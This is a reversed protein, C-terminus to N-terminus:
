PGPEELPTFTVDATATLMRDAPSISADIAYNTVDFTTRKVTQGIIPLSLLTTFLAANLVGRITRKM